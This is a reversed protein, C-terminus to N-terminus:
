VSVLAAAELNVTLKELRKQMERTLAEIGAVPNTNYQTFYKVLPVAEGVNVFVRSRFHPRSFFHLGIFFLQVGLDYGHRTETELVIRAAATRVQKVKRLMDSTGEPFIGISEGPELVEYSACFMSVNQDM